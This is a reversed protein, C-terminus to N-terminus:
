VFHTQVFNSSLFISETNINVYELSHATIHLVTASSNARVAEHQLLVKPFRHQLELLQHGNELQEMPVARELRHALTLATSLLHWAM